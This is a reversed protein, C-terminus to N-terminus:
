RTDTFSAVVAQQVAVVATDRMRVTRWGLEIPYKPLTLPCGLQRLGTLRSVAAAAHSPITAVADSGHLLYPLAAFHTTSASVLRKRGVNALAEDVIGVVGGSSVLIHPQAVYEDLTLHGARGPLSKPDMLCAYDGEGLSQRSLGRSSLGGSAVALDIERNLLAEAVIQSHTQRFILRLGPAKKAVADMVRRGVAIEFDDSLGISVSRGRHDTIDITTMALSQRCRDLAEAIVPKLEDARGTPALGRGTRTFLPDRYVGRLRRLASSVASQTLDLRIAARGAGGEEYLAEFVKLLNLDMAAIDIQSM